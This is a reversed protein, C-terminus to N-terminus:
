ALLHETPLFLLHTVLLHGHASCGDRVGTPVGRRGVALLSGLDPEPFWFLVQDGATGKPRPDEGAQAWWSQERAPVLGLSGISDQGLSTTVKGLQFPCWPAASSPSVQRGCSVPSNLRLRASRLM